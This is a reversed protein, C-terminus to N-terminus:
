TRVMHRVRRWLWFLSILRSGWSLCMGFHSHSGRVEAIPAGVEGKDEQAESSGLELVRQSVRQQPPEERQEEEDDHDHLVLSKLPTAPPSCAPGLAASRANRM